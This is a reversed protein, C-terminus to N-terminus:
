IVAGFHSFAVQFSSFSTKLYGKIIKSALAIEQKVPTTQLDVATQILQITHAAPRQIAVVLRLQTRRQTSIPPYHPCELM